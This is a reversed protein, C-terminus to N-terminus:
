TLGYVEMYWGLEAELATKITSAQRWGHGEGEFEIYKVKGKNKEITEVM